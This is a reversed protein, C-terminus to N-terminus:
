CSYMTGRRNIKKHYSHRFDVTRVSVLNMDSGRSKDFTTISGNPSLLTPWTGVNVMYIFGVKPM